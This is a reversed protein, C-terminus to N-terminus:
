KIITLISSGVSSMNVDLCSYIGPTILHCFLSQTSDHDCTIIVILALSVSTSPRVDKGTWRWSGGGPPVSCYHSPM